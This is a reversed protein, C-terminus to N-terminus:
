HKFISTIRGAIYRAYYLYGADSPHSNWYSETEPSVSGTNDDQTSFLAYRPGGDPNVPNDPDLAYTSYWNFCGGESYMNIIPINMAAQLKKLETDIQKAGETSSGAAAGEAPDSFTLKYPAVGYSGTQTTQTITRGSNTSPSGYILVLQAYPYKESLWKICWNLCGMFTAGRDMMDSCGAVGASIESIYADYPYYDDYEGIKFQRTDSVSSAPKYDNGYGFVITVLRAKSLIADNQYIQDMFNNGGARAMFGTTGITLNYTNLNLVKGLYDPFCNNTYTISKDFNHIAGAATSAGFAVYVPNEGDGDTGANNASRIYRIRFYQALLPKTMTAPSPNASTYGYSIRIGDIPDGGVDAPIVISSRAPVAVRQKWTSGSFLSVLTTTIQNDVGINDTDNVIVDGPSVPSLDSTAYPPNPNYSGGSTYFYGLKWNYWVSETLPVVGPVLAGLTDTNAGVATALPDYSIDHWILTSPSGANTRGVYHTGGGVTTVDIRRYTSLYVLCTVLTYSGSTPTFPLDPILSSIDTSVLWAFTHDPMALIGDGSILASVEDSTLERMAADKLATINSYSVDHWYVTDPHSAATAGIYRNAGSGREIIYFRYAGMPYSFVIYYISSVLGLSALDNTHTGDITMLRSGNAAFTRYVPVDLFSELENIEDTTLEKIMEDYIVQNSPTNLIEIGSVTAHDIVKGSNVYLSLRWETAGDPVVVAKEGRLYYSENLDSGYFQVRLRVNRDTTNYLAYLTDGAGVSSPLASRALINNASETTATGDVDCVGDTWTYTIGAYSSDQYDILGRTLSYANYKHLDAFEAGVEAADAAKWDQTLTKDTTYSFLINEADAVTLDDAPDPDLRSLIKFTYPAKDGPLYCAIQVLDLEGDTMLIVGSTKKLDSGTWVGAYGDKDYVYAGIKFSNTARVKLIGAPLIDTHMRKRNPSSPEEGTAPALANVTWLSTDYAVAYLHNLAATNEEVKPALTVATWHASNWAEATSIVTNCIYLGGEHLVYDGVGYTAAADYEPALNAAAALAEAAANAATTANTGSNGMDAEFEEKTGVYGGAVAMDYATIPVRGEAIMRAIIDVAM